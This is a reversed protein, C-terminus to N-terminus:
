QLRAPCVLMTHASIPLTSSGLQFSWPSVTSNECCGCQLVASSNRLLATKMATSYEWGTLQVLTDKKVVGCM